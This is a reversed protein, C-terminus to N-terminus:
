TTNGTLHDTAAALCLLQQTQHTLTRPMVTGVSDDDDEDQGPLADPPGQGVQQVAFESLAKGFVAVGGAAATSEVVLSHSFLKDSNDYVCREDHPDDPEDNFTNLSM